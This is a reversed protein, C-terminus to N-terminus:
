SYCALTHETRTVGLPTQLGRYVTAGLHDDAVHGIVWGNTVIEM